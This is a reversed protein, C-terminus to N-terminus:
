YTNQGIVNEAADLLNDYHLILESSDMQRKRQIRYTRDNFDSRRGAVVVFYLRTKDLQIFERPLPLESRRHKDFTESLASYREELWTNWDAVQSLGKRFAVGLDGNELTIDGKPAELEVFVFHWGGSSLGVLLHDVKYSNGLQFEPFIHAEHHGFRFYAKLLSAVIFYARNELIFSLVKRENVDGDLLGRFSALTTRLREEDKLEVIDLYNNPFLSKFHRVAKPYSRFAGTRVLLKGVQKTHEKDYRQWETIEEATLRTYDRDYLKMTQTVTGHYTTKSCPRM